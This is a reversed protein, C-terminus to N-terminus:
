KITKLLLWSQPRTPAHWCDIHVVRLLFDHALGTAAESQGEFPDQEKDAVWKDTQEGPGDGVTAVWFVPLNSVLEYYKTIPKMQNM